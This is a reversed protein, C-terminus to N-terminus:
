WSIKRQCTPVKIFKKGNTRVWNDLYKWQHTTVAPLLLLHLQIFPSPSASRDPTPKYFIKYYGGGGGTNYKLELQTSQVNGSVVDSCLHHQMQQTVTQTVHWPCFGWQDVHGRHLMMVIWKVAECEKIERGQILLRWVGTLKIILDSLMVKKDGGGGM